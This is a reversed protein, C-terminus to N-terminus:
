EGAPRDRRLQGLFHGVLRAGGLWHAAVTAERSGTRTAFGPEQACKQAAVVRVSLVEIAALDIRTHMRGAARPIAGPRTHLRRKGAPRTDKRQKSTPQGLGAVRSAEPARLGGSRRARRGALVRAVKLGFKRPGGSPPAPFLAGYRAGPRRRKDCRLGIPPWASCGRQLGSRSRETGAGQIPGSPRIRQGDRAM